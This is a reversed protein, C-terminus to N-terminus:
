VHESAGVNLHLVQVPQGVKEKLVARQRMSPCFDHQRLEDLAGHHGLKDRNEEEEDVTEAVIQWISAEEERKEHRNLSRDLEPHLADRVDVVAVANHM